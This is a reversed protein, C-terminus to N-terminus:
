AKKVPVGEGVTELVQQLTRLEGLMETDVEPLDPYREQLAGLIEVRKISDIGLDAEMDMDLELMDAPYGTKESVIELLAQALDANERDERASQERTEVEVRRTDGSVVDPFRVAVGQAASTERGGMYQVIEGLTRLEALQETSVDPLDPYADQLAGLIEVRKISDIGLDAEMDMDLELMDVPYGTKDSVVQLLTSIMSEHDIAQPAPTTAAPAVSLTPESTPPVDWTPAEDDDSHGTGNGPEGGNSPFSEHITASVTQPMPAVESPRHGNGHEEGGVAMVVPRGVREGDRFYEHLLDMYAQVYSAQQRLFQEHVTLMQAHHDHFQALSKSMSEVAQRRAEIVAPSANGDILTRTQDRLVQGVIHTFAAENTLYQQHVRLTETQHDFAYELAQDLGALTHMVVVTGEEQSSSLHHLEQVQDGEGVNEPRSVAPTTEPGRHIRAKAEALTREFARRRKESVYNAGNLIVRFAM